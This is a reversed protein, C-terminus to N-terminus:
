TFNLWKPWNGFINNLNSIMETHGFQGFNTPYKAQSVNEFKSQCINVNNPLNANNCIALYQVFWKIIDCQKCSAKFQVANISVLQPFSCGNRDM